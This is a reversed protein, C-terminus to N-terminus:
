ILREKSVSSMNERQFRFYKTKFGPYLTKEKENQFLFKNEIFYSIQSFDLISIICIASSRLSSQLGGLYKRFCKNDFFYTAM